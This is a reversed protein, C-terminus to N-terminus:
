HKCKTHLVIAEKHRSAAYLTECHISVNLQILDLIYEVTFGYKM